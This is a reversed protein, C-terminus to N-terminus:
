AKAKIDHLEISSLSKVVFVVCSCNRSSNGSREMDSCHSLLVSNWDNKVGIMASLLKKWPDVTEPAAMAMSNQAVNVSTKM